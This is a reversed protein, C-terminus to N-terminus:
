SISSGKFMENGDFGLFVLGFEFFCIDDYNKKLYLQFFFFFYQIENSFATVSKLGNGCTEQQFLFNNILL